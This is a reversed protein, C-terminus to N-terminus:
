EERMSDCRLEAAYEAADREFERQHEECRLGDGTRRVNERAEDGLWCCMDQIQKKFTQGFEAATKLSGMEKHTLIFDTLHDKFAMDTSYYVCDECNEPECVRM